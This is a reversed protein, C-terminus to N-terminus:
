NKLEREQSYMWRFQVFGGVRAEWPLHVLLHQMANFWGHPFVTEMKCVLVVIEKELRQMMVTSVQKAYIQRYFYSPEAFMEWLNPKFYGHFMVSMLREIFINYNHSKLGNLKGTGVNVAWKINAAYRDPFKLTKLWRLVEKRETPKLCYPAKTRRPNGRANPKDEMNPHDCLDALDKRANVNDKIFGTVNLCMSMISKMINWEQHILDINHPLILSKAYPLEWLCSKYTWNHNVGYGEFVGNELEKLDDLMQIIDAGFKQKLSGKRVTKGKLFSRTDNRFEHSSPLFRRHYDFFSVKRDHQLRFADTDNM